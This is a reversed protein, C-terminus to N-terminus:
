IRVSNPGCKWSTVSPLHNTNKLYRKIGATCKTSSGSGLFPIHQEEKDPMCEAKKDDTPRSFLNCERKGSASCVESIRPVNSPGMNRTPTYETFVTDYKSAVRIRSQM